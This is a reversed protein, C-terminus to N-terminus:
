RYRGPCPEEYIHENTATSHIPQLPRTHQPPDRPLCLRNSIQWLGSRGLAKPEGEFEGLYNCRGQDRPTVRQGVDNAM